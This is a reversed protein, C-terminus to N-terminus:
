ERAANLPVDITQPQGQGGRLLTVKLTDGLKKQTELYSVLDGDTRMPKGDVALIIDGGLAIEYNGVLVRRSGGRIGAQAAASGPQAEIVLLGQKASLELMQALRPTLPLVSVGLYPHRARGYQILDPVFRKVTNIPIAFGIGVSGGSPSYILTNVGIVQGNSNFLPGGSNGQNIAADTQILGPIVRGNEVQISRNLSSLVGTTITQGLGFPNGIAISTQGVQLSDSDGMQVPQLLEPPAQVKLVAIDNGKDFGVLEAPYSQDVNAFAVFFRQAGEAVHYNTIVHGQKDIVFGSGAGERPTLQMYNNYGLSRTTVNVVSPSVNKYLNIVQQENAGLPAPAAQAVQHNPASAQSQANGQRPGQQIWQQAALVLTAAILGSILMQAGKKIPKASAPSTEHSPHEPQM